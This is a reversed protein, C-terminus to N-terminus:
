QRPRGPVILRVEDKFMARLGDVIEEFSAGQFHEAVTQYVRLQLYLAQGWEWYVWDPLEEKGGRAVADEVRQLVVARPYAYFEVTGDDLELCALSPLPSAFSERRLAQVVADEHLGSATASLTALAGAPLPKNAPQM